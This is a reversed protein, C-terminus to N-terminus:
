FSRPTGMEEIITDLLENQRAAYCEIIRELLQVREDITTQSFSLFASRAAKVAQDVDHHSGMSVKAFETETAPNILIQREASTTTEWKGNIFFADYSRM